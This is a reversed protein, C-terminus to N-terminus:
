VTKKVMGRWLGLEVRKDSLGVDSIYMAMDLRAQEECAQKQSFEVTSRIILKMLEWYHPSCEEHNLKRWLEAAPVFLEAFRSGSYRSEYAYAPWLVEYMNDDIQSIYLEEKQAALVAYSDSNLVIRPGKVTGELNVADVIAPGFLIPVPIRQGLKLGMLECPLVEGVVVGGRFLIPKESDVKKPSLLRANYEYCSLVFHALQPVFKDVENSAIFVSDSFPLFFDFSSVYATEAIERQVGEYNDLPSVQQDCFKQELITKYGSLVDLANPASQRIFNSMGLLDMYAVIKPKPQKETAEKAGSDKPQMEKLRKILKNLCM